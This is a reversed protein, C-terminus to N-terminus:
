SPFCLQSYFGGDEEEVMLVLKVDKKNRYREGM